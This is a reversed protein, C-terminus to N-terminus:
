DLQKSVQNSRDIEIDDSDYATISFFWEGPVLNEVVYKVVDPKNVYIHYDDTGSMRGHYIKYGALNHLPM